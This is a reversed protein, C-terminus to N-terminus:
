KPIEKISEEMDELDEKLNQITTQILEPVRKLNLPKVKEFEMELESLIVLLEKKGDELMKKFEEPTIQKKPKRGAKKKTETQPNSM